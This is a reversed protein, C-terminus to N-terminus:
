SGAGEQPSPHLLEKIDHLRQLFRDRVEDLQAQRTELHLRQAELYSAEGLQQKHEEMIDVIQQFLSAFYDSVWEKIGAAITDLVVRLKDSLLARSEDIQLLQQEIHQKLTRSKMFNRAFMGLVFGGAGGVPFALPGLLPTLIAMGSGGSAIASSVTTIGVVAEALGVKDDYNGFVGLLSKQARSFAFPQVDPTQEPQGLLLLEDLQRLLWRHAAHFMSEIRETLFQELAAGKELNDKYLQEIEEVMAGFAQKDSITTLQQTTREILQEVKPQVQQILQNMEGDIADFLEYKKLEAKKYSQHLEQVKQEIVNRETFLVQAQLTILKQLLTIVEFSNRISSALVLRGSDQTLFEELALRFDQFGSLTVEHQKGQLTAEWAHKANMVFIRINDPKLDPHHRLDPDRAINRLVQEKLRNRQTWYDQSLNIVIFVKGCHHSARKLFDIESGTFPPYLSTIIVAGMSELWQTSLSSYDRVVDNLGPTDYFRIGDELYSMTLKIQVRAIGKHNEPNHLQDTYLPIEEWSAAQKRGDLFHLFVEEQKGYEFEMIVGTNSVVDPRTVERRSLTNILTSKGSCTEGFVGITLRDERLRNLRQDVKKLIAEALPDSEKKAIDSRLMKAITDLDNIIQMRIDTYRALQNPHTPITHAYQPADGSPQTQHNTDTNHKEM